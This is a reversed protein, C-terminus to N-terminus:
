ACTSLRSRRPIIPSSSPAAQVDEETLYREHETQLDIGWEVPYEFKRRQKKLMEVAETYTVRGFDTASSTICGRLCARISLATSSSWRRRAASWSTRNIIYKVMAEATDMYDNLDAFAMEPEIMWFEAAHRQTYSDEARFTPGFTYVDGFAM